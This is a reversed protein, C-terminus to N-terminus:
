TGMTTSYNQQHLARGPGNHRVHVKPWINIRIVIQRWRWEARRWAFLGSQKRFSKQLENIKHTPPLSGCQLVEELIVNVRSEWKKEELHQRLGVGEHSEALQVFSVDAASCGFSKVFARVGGSAGTAYLIAVGYQRQREEFDPSCVLENIWGVPESSVRSRLGDQPCHYRAM